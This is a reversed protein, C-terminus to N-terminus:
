VSDPSWLFNINIYCPNEPEFRLQLQNYGREKVWNKLYKREGVSCYPIGNKRWTCDEEGNGVGYIWIVPIRQTSRDNYIYASSYDQKERALTCLTKQPCDKNNQSYRYRTDTYNNANTIQLTTNKVFCIAIIVCAVGMIKKVFNKRM